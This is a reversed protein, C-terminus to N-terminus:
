DVNEFQFGLSTYLAVAPENALTVALWLAREGAEYLAEMASRMCARALGQNKADPHTISYTVFPRDQWRTILTASLIRADKEYLRSSNADFPGYGGAFTKRIEAEAQDETEGEYDVTGLYACYMLPGLAQEDSAHVARVGASPAITAGSLAIRM